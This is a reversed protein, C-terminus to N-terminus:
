DLQVDSPMTLIPQLIAWFFISPNFDLFYLDLFSSYLFLEIRLDSIIIKDEFSKWRKAM